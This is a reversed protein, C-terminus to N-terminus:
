NGKAWHQATAGAAFAGIMLLFANLGDGAPLKGLAVFIWIFATGHVVSWLGYLRTSSLQSNPDKLFELLTSM